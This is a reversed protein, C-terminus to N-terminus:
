SLHLTTEASIIVDQFVLLTYHASSETVSTLHTRVSLFHPTLIINSLLYAYSSSNEHKM